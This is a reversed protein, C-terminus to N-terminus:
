WITTILLHTSDIAIGVKRTNSGASTSITGATNALYYQTGPTLSSFGSLLGGVVMTVTAGLAYANLAFGVVNATGASSASAQFLRYIPATIPALAIQV